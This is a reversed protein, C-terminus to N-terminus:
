LRAARRALRQLARTRYREDARDLRYTAWWSSRCWRNCLVRLSRTMTRKGAEGELANVFKSSGHATIAILRTVNTLGPRLRNGGAPLHWAVGSAWVRDFWGKLMAPQGSWWTPYVLVLTTCWQLDQAHDAISDHVGPILHDRHEDASLEPDFGEAYLDRVRVEHREDIADTFARAAAHSFSAPDPHCIVVLIRRDAM